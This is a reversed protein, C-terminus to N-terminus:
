MNRFLVLGQGAAKEFFGKILAVKAHHILNNGGVVNQVVRGERLFYATGLADLPEDLHVSTGVGVGVDRHLLLYGFPIIYYGAPRPSASVLPFQQADRGAAVPNLDCADGYVADGPALERLAPGDVIGQAHKLLYASDGWRPL